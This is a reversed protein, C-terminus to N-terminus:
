KSLYEMCRSTLFAKIGSDNPRIPYGDEDYVFRPARGTTSCFKTYAITLLDMAIFGGAKHTRGGASGIDRCVDKSMESVSIDDVCSRFSLKVGSELISFAVCVDVVDVELVFDSIIGLVNPDCPGTKVICLRYKEIYDRGIMAMGAIELEELSMNANRFKALIANDVVAKDRLEKDIPNSVEAFAGTDTYLGYYLATSLKIDSDVDYEEDKLMEWLMSSCSGVETQIRKMDPLKTCMKHHDIVAIKEADFRTANGENYQCDVMVLLQPTDIRDVHEIPIDLEKQMLVLNSKHLINKGGYIFRPTKGNKLLYRYVGYGSALADADPNDHCQIVIDDYKLFERLQLQM